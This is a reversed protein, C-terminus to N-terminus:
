LKMDQPIAMTPRCGVDKGRMRPLEQFMSSPSRTSSQKDEDRREGGGRIVDPEVSCLDRDIECFIEDGCGGGTSPLVDLSLLIVVATETEEATSAAPVM